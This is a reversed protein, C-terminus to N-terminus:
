SLPLILYLQGSQRPYKFPLPPTCSSEFVSISQKLGKEEGWDEERERFRYVSTWRETHIGDTGTPNYFKVYSWTFVVYGCPKCSNIFSCIYIRYANSFHM